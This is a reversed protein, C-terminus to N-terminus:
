VFTAGITLFIMTGSMAWVVLPVEYKGIDM